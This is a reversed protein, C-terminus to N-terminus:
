KVERFQPLFAQILPYDGLLLLFVTVIYKRHKEVTKPSINFAISIEGQPIRNFKMLNEKMSQNSIIFYAIQVCLNRSREQKPCIKVLESFKIGHENLEKEFIEIEYSLNLREQEKNYFDMSENDIATFAPMEPDNSEQASFPILKSTLRNKKKSEDIIRNKICTKTFSIFGGKGEEYQKVCNMFVIMGISLKDEYELNSYPTESIVKKIFPMYDYIFKNLQMNDKKAITIREEM